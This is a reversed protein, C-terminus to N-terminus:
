TSVAMSYSGMEIGGPEWQQTVDNWYDPQWGLQVGTVNWQTTQHPLGIATFVPVGNNYITAHITSDGENICYVRTVRWNADNLDFEVRAQGLISHLLRLTAM